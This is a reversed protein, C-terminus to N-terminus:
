SGRAPSPTQAPARSPRTSPGGDGQAAGADPPVVAAAPTGHVVAHWAERDMVLERLEGLSVPAACPSPPGEVLGERAGAWVGLGALPEHGEPLPRGVLSVVATLLGYMVALSYGGSGM